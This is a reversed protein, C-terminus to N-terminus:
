GHWQELEANLNQVITAYQDKVEFSVGQTYIKTRVGNEGAQEFVTLGGTPLVAVHLGNSGPRVLEIMRM